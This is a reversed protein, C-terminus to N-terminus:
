RITEGASVILGRQALNDGVGGCAETSKRACTFGASATSNTVGSCLRETGAASFFASSM